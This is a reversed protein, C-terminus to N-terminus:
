SVGYSVGFASWVDFRPVRDRVFRGTLYPLGVAPASDVKLSRFFIPSWVRLSEPEHDPGQAGRDESAEYTEGQRQNPM